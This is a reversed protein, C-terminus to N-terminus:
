GAVIAVGNRCFCVVGNIRLDAVGEATVVVGATVIVGAECFCVVTM